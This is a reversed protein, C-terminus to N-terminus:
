AYQVTLQAAEAAQRGSTRLVLELALDLASSIGGGSFRSRDPDILFRPFGDAVHFDRKAALRKLNDLQSWYTTVEVKRFFGAVALPFAGSCVSGVWQATAGARCLFRQYDSHAMAWVVGDAGGGPVFLVDLAPHYDFSYNPVVSVGETTLVPGLDRALWVPEFGDAFRFIQTAGAFDVLTVGQYLPFGVYMFVERPGRGQSRSGM